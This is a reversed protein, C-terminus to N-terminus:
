EDQKELLEIASEIVHSKNRYKNKKLLNNIKEITEREVSASIRQKM